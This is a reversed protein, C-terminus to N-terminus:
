PCAANLRNRVYILDLINIRGDQNADAQHNGNVTQLCTDQTLRDRIFLLDLINVRCDENVDGDVPHHPTWSAFISNGYAGQNVRLGNPFPEQEFSSQPDGADLCESM